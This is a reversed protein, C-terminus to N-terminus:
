KEYGIENITKEIRVQESPEQPRPKAIYLFFFRFVVLALFIWLAFSCFFSRCADKSSLNGKPHKKPLLLALLIASFLIGVTASLLLMIPEAQAWFTPNIRSTVWLAANIGNSLSAAVWCLYQSGTKLRILGLLLGTVFLPPLVLFSIHSGAGILAATLVALWPSEKQLEGLVIGRMSLESFFGPLITAAVIVALYTSPHQPLVPLEFRETLVYGAETMSATVRAFLLYLAAGCGFVAPIATLLVPLSVPKKAPVYYQGPSRHVIMRYLLFPVYLSVSWYFVLVFTKLICLTPTLELDNPFFQAAYWSFLPQSIAVGCATIFFVTFIERLRKRHEMERFTQIKESM